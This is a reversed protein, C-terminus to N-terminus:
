IHQISAGYATLMYWPLQALGFHFLMFKGVLSHGNIQMHM